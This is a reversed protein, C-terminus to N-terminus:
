RSGRSGSPTKKPEPPHPSASPTPNPQSSNGGNEPRIEIVFTVFRSMASGEAYGTRSSRRKSVVEPKEEAAGSERVNAASPSGAADKARSRALSERRAVLNGPERPSEAAAGAPASRRALLEPDIGVGRLLDNLFRQDASTSGDAPEARDAAMQSDVTPPAKASLETDEAASETIVQLVQQSRALGRVRLAGAQLEVAEPRQAEPLDAFVEAIQEGSARVLLQEHRAQPFNRGPQGRLFFGYATMEGASAGGPAKSLDPIQAAHLRGALREALRAREAEDKVAIQLRVPEASFPHTQLEDLPAGSALKEEVTRVPRSGAPEALAVETERSVADTSAPRASDAFRPGGPFSNEFYWWGFLGAFVLSAAVAMPVLRRFVRLTHVDSAIQPNDLLASREIHAQLDEFVTPPAPHRPLSRVLDRNRRLDEYLRRARADQRMLQEAARKEREDVEGDLYASLLESVQEPSMRNVM